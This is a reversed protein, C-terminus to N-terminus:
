PMFFIDQLPSYVPISMEEMKEWSAVAGLRAHMVGNGYWDREGASGTGSEGGSLFQPFVQREM